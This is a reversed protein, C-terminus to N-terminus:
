SASLLNEHHKVPGLTLKEEGEVMRTFLSSEIMTLLNRVTSVTWLEIRQDQVWDNNLFPGEYIIVKQIDGDGNIYNALVSLKGEGAKYTPDADIHLYMGM